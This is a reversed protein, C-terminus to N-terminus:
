KVERQNIAASCYALVSLITLKHIWFSQFVKITFTKFIKSSITIAFYHTPDFSPRGWNAQELIRSWWELLRVRIQKLSDTPIRNSSPFKTNALQQSLSLWLARSLHATPITSACGLSFQRCTNFRQCCLTNPQSSLSLETM